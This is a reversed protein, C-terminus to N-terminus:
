FWLDSEYNFCFMDRERAVNWSFFKPILKNAYSVLSLESFKLLDRFSRPHRSTRCSRAWIVFIKSFFSCKEDSEDVLFDEFFNSNKKKILIYVTCLTCTYLIPGAYAWLAVHASSPPANRGRRVCSGPAPTHKVSRRVLVRWQLCFLIVVMFVSKVLNRRLYSSLLKHSKRTRISVDCFDSFTHFECLLPRCLVCESRGSFFYCFLYSQKNKPFDSFAM